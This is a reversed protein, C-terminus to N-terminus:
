HGGMKKYKKLFEAQDTQFSSILADGVAPYDEYNLTNSAM